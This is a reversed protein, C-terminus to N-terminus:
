GGTPSVTFDLAPGDIDGSLAGGLAHRGEPPGALASRRGDREGYVGSPVAHVVLDRWGSRGTRSWPDSPDNFSARLEAGLTGDPTTAPGAQVSTYTVQGSWDLGSPGLVVASRPVTLGASVGGGALALRTPEMFLDATLTLPALDLFGSVGVPGFRGVIGSVAGDRYTGALSGRLDP